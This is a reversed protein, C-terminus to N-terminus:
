PFFTQRIEDIAMKALALRNHDVSPTENSFAIFFECGATELFAKENISLMGMLNLEHFILRFSSPTFVWAHIDVYDGNSRYQDLMQAGFTEGHLFKIEGTRGREWSITEDLKAAKSFSDFIQGATHKTRSGLHAQLLDGTSSPWRLYDFCFRKDPIALALIGGPKLLSQCDEVFGILDPLHEVVHSAIIWDYKSRVGVVDKLSGGAWIFDVEEIADLNVNHGRYKEILGNRDLHDVTHVKFGESKPTVPNHCPGIELGLGRLDIFSKIKDKRVKESM